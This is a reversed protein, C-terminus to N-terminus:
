HRGSASLSQMCPMGLGSVAFTFAIRQESEYPPQLLVGGRASSSFCVGGLGGFVHAPCVPSVRTFLLRAEASSATKEFVFVM